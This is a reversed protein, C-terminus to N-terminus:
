WELAESIVPFEEKFIQKIANAVDAHEKQTGNSARLNIYFIWSRVNGTMYLTTPTALPLVFRASEKAVGKEIAKKTAWFDKNFPKKFKGIFTTTSILEKNGIFYKHKDDYYKIHNFVSFIKILNEQTIM